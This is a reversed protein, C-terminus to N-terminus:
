SMLQLFIWDCLDAFHGKQQALLGSSLRSVIAFHNMDILEAGEPASGARDLVGKDFSKRPGPPRQLWFTEDM